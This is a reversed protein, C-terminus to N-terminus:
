INYGHLLVEMEEFRAAFDMRSTRSAYPCLWIFPLAKPAVGGDRSSCLWKFPLAKPAVQALIAVSHFFSHISETLLLLRFMNISMSVIPTIMVM